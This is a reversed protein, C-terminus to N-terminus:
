KLRSQNNLVIHLKSMQFNKHYKHKNLYPDQEFMDQRNSQDNYLLYHELQGKRGLKNVVIGNMCLQESM